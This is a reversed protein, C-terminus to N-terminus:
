DSLLAFEEQTIPRGEMLPVPTIGIQTSSLAFDQKQAERDLEDTMAQRKNQIEKMVDEVRHTYDQSEFARPIERRCTEVLEEMDRM